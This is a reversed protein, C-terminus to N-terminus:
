VLCSRPFLSGLARRSSTSRLSRSLFADLHEPAMYSLTGGFAQSDSQSEPLSPCALSFDALMPRGYCNFLINGPKIDRHLIGQRHAHDLAEALRSGIWCVVQVFDCAGLFERDRLLAPELTTPQTSLEDIAKLFDAGNWKRPGLFQL